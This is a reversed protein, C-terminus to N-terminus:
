PPRREPPSAVSGTVRFFAEFCVLGFPRDRLVVTSESLQLLLPPIGFGRHPLFWPRARWAPVAGRAAPPRPLGPDQGRGGRGRGITSGLLTRWSKGRVRRGLHSGFPLKGRSAVWRVHPM